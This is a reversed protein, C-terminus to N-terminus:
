VSSFREFEVLGMLSFWTAWVEDGKILDLTSCAMALTRRSSKKEDSSKKKTTEKKKCCCRWPAEEHKTRKLKNKLNQIRAM